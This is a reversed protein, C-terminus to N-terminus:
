QFTIGGGWAAVRGGSDNRRLGSDLIPLNLGVCDFGVVM